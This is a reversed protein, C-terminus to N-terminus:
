YSARIRLMVTNSNYEVDSRDSSRTAFEYDGGADLYENISYYLSARTDFVNDEREVGGLAQNMEFDYNTYRARLGAQWDLMLNYTADASYRTRLYGSSELLTNDEIRRDIGANLALDAQPLYRLQLGMAPASVDPRGSANYSQKMYGAYANIWPTSAEMEAGYEAGIGIMYGESDRSSTATSDIETDYSRSNLAGTVYLFSNPNVMKGLRSEVFYTAHDRDDNIIIGGGTADVDQYNIYDVGAYSVTRFTQYSTDIGAKAGAAYYDTPDEAGRSPDDVFSGIPVHDSSLRSEFLLWTQEGTRLRSDLRLDADVYSNNTNDFFQGYEILGRLRIDHDDLHSRLLFGPALISIIDSEENAPSRYINDTYEIGAYGYTGVSLWPEYEKVERPTINGLILRGTDEISGTTPNDFDQAYATSFSLASIISAALLIRTQHM